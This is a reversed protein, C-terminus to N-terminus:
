MTFLRELYAAVGDEDDGDTVEDAAAKLDPHAGTVAVAHGAWEFMPLDNLADGFVVVDDRSVGLRGAVMSLGTGKDTGPPCVEVFGIGAETLTALEMPVVSRSLDLLELSPIIPSRLFTKIVPGGFIQEREGGLIPVPWPWDPIVHGVLPAENGPDTEAIVTLDHELHDEILDVVKAAQHGPMVTEHLLAPEGTGCRYIFGGQALVLYDAAPVDRQSLELLRPGRGTIGVVTVGADALRRLVRHTRDSVTNDSRVITGDLDTAVLKPLTM